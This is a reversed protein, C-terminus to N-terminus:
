KDEKIQKEAKKVCENREIKCDEVSDGGMNVFTDLFDAICADYKKICMKYDYHVQKFDTQAYVVNILIFFAIFLKNIKIM